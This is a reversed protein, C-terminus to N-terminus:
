VAPTIQVVDAFDSNRVPNQELPAQQRVFFPLGHPEMRNAALLDALRHFGQGWHQRNDAAVVFSPISRAVGVSQSALRDRQQRPNQLDGVNVVGEGGRSGILRRKGMLVGDLDHDLLRAPAPPIRFQDGQERFNRLVRNAPSYM